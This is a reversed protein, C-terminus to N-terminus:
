SLVEEYVKKTEIACKKWSFNKLRQRGKLILEKRLGQNYILNEVSDRLSKEDEPNFFIAADAAVEPLSSTNSLVAPCDCSFAELIPIGFGEYLTPFVFCLANKYLNALTDDSQIPKHLIRKTISLKKFLEIEETNFQKSGACIIFLEKDKKLLPALSKIFFVFNKYLHRDGVFLIYQEPLDNVKVNKSDFVLSSGLHVVKIKKPEIGYIEVLDKKTSESISMVRSAKEALMKKTKLVSNSEKFYKGSYIEHIMDYVTLVFPKEGLYELFYSDYYTPHFLDFNGNKITRVSFKKNLITPEKALGLNTFIKHLTKAGKFNLGKFFDEPNEAKEINKFIESNQLYANNSCKLSLQYLINPNKDYENMLEFFYRSIGGYKQLSFIQHDYLIKM